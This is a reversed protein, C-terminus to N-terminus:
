NKIKMILSDIDEKIKKEYDLEIKKNGYKKKLEIFTEENQNVKKLNRRYHIETNSKEAFWKECGEIKCIYKKEGTHTRIHAKM